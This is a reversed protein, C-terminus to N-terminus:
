CFTFFYIYHQMFRHMRPKWQKALYIDIGTDQTFETQRSLFHPANDQLNRSTDPTPPPVDLLAEM